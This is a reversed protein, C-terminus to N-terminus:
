KGCLSMNGHLRNCSLRPLRIPFGIPAFNTVHFGKWGDPAMVADGPEISEIGYQSQVGTNKAPIYLECHLSMNQLFCGKHSIIKFRAAAQIM